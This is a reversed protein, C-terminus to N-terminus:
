CPILVPYKEAIYHQIAHFQTGLDRFQYLNLREAFVYHMTHLPGQIRKSTRDM